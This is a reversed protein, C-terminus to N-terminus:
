IKSLKEGHSPILYYLLLVLIVSAFDLMPQVLIVGYLPWAMNMLIMVPIDLSGKRFLSVLVARGSKQKAQFIAVYLFLISLLPMAMCHLRIFSTGIEITETDSIFFSMLNHAFIEYLVLFIAGLTVTVTLAYRVTQHVRERNKASFNYSLLPLVGQALGQSIHAPVLDIKKVIGLAAVASTGYGTVLLNLVVNSFTAFFTMGANPLGIVVARGALEKKLTFHKIHISVVTKKRTIFLYTLFFLVAVSNSICTAMAAGKCGLGLGFPFIFVPDLAINLLAGIAMGVSAQLSKGTARVLHAMVVNLVTPVGGIVVTWLVYDAAFHLIAEDKAGLLVLLPERFFLLLLSYVGTVFITIWFAFSSLKKVDAYKEVGLASAIMSGSGVGFLNSLVTLMLYIPLVLTVAAVQMTDGTQAIFWTDALNYIITILQGIITPAALIFISQIVPRTEFLEKDKASLTNMNKNYENVFSKALFNYKEM